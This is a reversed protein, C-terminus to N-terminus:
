FYSQWSNDQGDSNNPGVETSSSGSFLSRNTQRDTHGLIFNSYIKQVSWFNSLFEVCFKYIIDCHKHFVVSMKIIM